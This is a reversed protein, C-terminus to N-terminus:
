AIFSHWNPPELFSSLDYQTMPCQFLVQCYLWSLKGSLNDQHWMANLPDTPVQASQQLWLGWRSPSPTATLKATTWIRGEGKPRASTTCSQGSTYKQMLQSQHCILLKSQQQKGHGYLRKSFQMEKLGRQTHHWKWVSLLNWKDSLFKKSSDQQQPDWLSVWVVHFIGSTSPLIPWNPLREKRTSAKNM